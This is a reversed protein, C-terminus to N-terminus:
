EAMYRGWSLKTYYWENLSIDNSKPVYISIGCFTNIDVYSNLIATYFSASHDKYIVTNALLNNLILQENSSTLQDIVNKYDFSIEKQPYQYAFAQLNNTNLDLLKSQKLINKTFAALQDLSATKVLSVTASREYLNRKNKYYDVFTNAISKLSAETDGNSMMDGVILKYPFGEKLVETPSSIIYKTRDKLEYCVEISAMNCADFLIFDYTYEELAERLKYIEMEDNGDQGFTRSQLGNYSPLWGSGHSWLVLGRNNSPFMSFADTIVKKLTQESASNQDGYSKIVKKKVVNNEEYIEILEPSKIDKPDNYVILKKNDLNNKAGIMLGEINEYSTDYLNNDSAMYILVTKKTIESKPHYDDKDSCSTIILFLLLTLSLTNNFKM